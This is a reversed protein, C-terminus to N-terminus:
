RYSWTPGQFSFSKSRPSAYLTSEEGVHEAFCPCAALFRKIHPWRAAAWDRLMLDWGRRRRGFEHRLIAIGAEVADEPRLVVCQTGYFCEIPYEWADRGQRVADATERYPTYLTYIRRDERARRDLWRALSGLFDSCFAVDDELFVVWDCPTTAAFILARAANDPLSYDEVAPHVSVQLPLGSLWDTSEPRTPCVHVVYSHDPNAGQAISQALRELTERRYNRKPSRDCTIM